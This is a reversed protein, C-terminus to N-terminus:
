KSRRKQEVPTANEMKRKNAVKKPTRLSGQEGGNSATGKFSM